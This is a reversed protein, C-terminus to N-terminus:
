TDVLEQIIEEIGKSSSGVQREVKWLDVIVTDSRFVFHLDGQESDGGVKPIVVGDYMVRIDAVEDWHEGKDTSFLIKVPPRDETKAEYKNLLLQHAEDLQKQLATLTLRRLYKPHRPGIKIVSVRDTVGFCYLAAEKKSGCKESLRTHEGYKCYYYDM